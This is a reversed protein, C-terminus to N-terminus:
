QGLVSSIPVDTDHLTNHAEIVTHSQGFGKAAGVGDGPDGLGRHNQHYTGLSGGQGHQGRNLSKQVEARVILNPPYDEVM